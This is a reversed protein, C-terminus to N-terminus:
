SHFLVNSIIAGIAGLVMGIAMVNGVTNIVRVRINGKRASSPLQGPGIKSSVWWGLTADIGAVFSGCLAGFIVNYQSVVMGGALLYIFISGWIGKAYNYGQHKAIAAWIGDYIITLTGFLLISLWFPM